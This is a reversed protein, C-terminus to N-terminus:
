SSPGASSRSSRCCTTHSGPRTTTRGSHCTTISRSTARVPQARAVRPRRSPIRRHDGGRARGHAAPRDRRRPEHPQVRLSSTRPPCRARARRRARDEARCAALDPRGVAVAARHRRDGSRRGRPDVSSSSPGRIDLEASSPTGWQDVAGPRPGFRGVWHATAGDLIAPGPSRAARHPAALIATM